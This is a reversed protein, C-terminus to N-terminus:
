TRLYSGAADRGDVRDLLYYVAFDGGTLIGKFEPRFYYKYWAFIALGGILVFIMSLIEPSNMRLLKGIITGIDGIVVAVNMMIFGLLLSAAVPHKDIFPHERKEM